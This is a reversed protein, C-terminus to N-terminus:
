SAPVLRYQRITQVGDADRWVGLVYDAGADMVTLAAPVAVRGVLAGEITFLWWEQERDGPRKYSGLWIRREADVVLRPELAPFVPAHSQRLYNARLSERRVPDTIGSVRDAAYAAMHSPRVPEPVYQHRVRRIVRGTTDVVDFQFTANDLLVLQDYSLGFTSTAGFLRLGRQFGGTLPGERIVSVEIELGPYRGVLRIPRGDRAYSVVPFVARETRAPGRDGLSISGGSTVLVRGDRLVGLLSMDATYMYESKQLVVQRVFGSDSFVAFRVQRGDYTVISDPGHRSMSRLQVIEGPGGGDRALVKELAGNPGFRLLQKRGADGVIIRGDPMRIASIVRVLESGPANGIEVGSPQLAFRQSAVDRVYSVIAVGASDRTVPTPRQAANAGPALFVGFSLLLALRM